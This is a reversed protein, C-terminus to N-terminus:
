ESNIYCATTRQHFATLGQLLLGRPLYLPLIRIHHPKTIRSLKRSTIQAPLPFNSWSGRSDVTDCAAISRLIPFVVTSVSVKVTPTCILSRWGNKTWFKISNRWFSIKNQLLLIFNQVLFLQLHLYPGGISVRVQRSSRCYRRSSHENWTQHKAPHNGLEWPRADMQRAFLLLCHAIGLWEFDIYHGKFFSISTICQDKSKDNLSNQM